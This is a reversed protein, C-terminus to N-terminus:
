KYILLKTKNLNTILKVDYILPLNLIQRHVHIVNKDKRVMCGSIYNHQHESKVKWIDTREEGKGENRLKKINCLTMRQFPTRNGFPSLKECFTYSGKVQFWSQVPSPKTGHTGTTCRRGSNHIETIDGRYVGIFDIDLFHVNLHSM